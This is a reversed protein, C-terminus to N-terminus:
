GEWDRVRSLLVGTFARRRRFARLASDPLADVSTGLEALFEDLRRVPALEEVNDIPVGSTQAFGPKYKKGIQNNVFGMRTRRGEFCSEMFARDTAGRVMFSKGGNGHGAEIDASLATQGAAPNSWETWGRFND